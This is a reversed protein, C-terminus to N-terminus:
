AARRSAAAASDAYRRRVLQWGSWAFAIATVAIGIRDLRIPGSPVYALPYTVIAAISGVCIAVGTWRPYVRAQSTAVGYAVFGALLCLYSLYFYALFAGGLNQELGGQLLFRTEDRGALTPGVFASIVETSVELMALGLFTLAFGTLGLRGAKSAQFAYLGPLGALFILSGFLKALDDLASLPDLYLATGEARSTLLSAVAVISMGIMAALGSLGYLTSARM